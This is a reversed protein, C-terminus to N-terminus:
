LTTPPMSAQLSLTSPPTGFYQTRGARDTKLMGPELRAHPPRYSLTRMRAYAAGMGTFGFAGM